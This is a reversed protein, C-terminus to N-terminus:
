TFNRYKECHSKRNRKLLRKSERETLTLNLYQNCYFIKLIELNDAM